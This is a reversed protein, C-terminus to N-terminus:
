DALSLSLSELFCYFSASSSLFAASSACFSASASAPHISFYLSDTSRTSANFFCSSSLFYAKFSASASFTLYAMFASDRTAWDFVAVSVSVLWYSCKYSNIFTLFSISFDALSVKLSPIFAIHRSHLLKAYCVTFNSQIIITCRGFFDYLTLSCSQLQKIILLNLAGESKLQILSKVAVMEKSNGFISLFNSKRSFWPRSPLNLLCTILILPEWKQMLVNRSKTQM